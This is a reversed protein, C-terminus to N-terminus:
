GLSYDFTYRHEGDEIKITMSGSLNALEGTGSDPVVTLVLASEGRNMIGFHQLVFTGQRGQLAGEVQEIAVYGASGNVPTVANLMEGKSTAVLDGRFTKDISLRGLSIGERGEAFADLPRLDVNFEGAAHM